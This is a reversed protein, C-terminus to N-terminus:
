IKGFIKMSEEHCYQCYLFLGRRFKFYSRIDSGCFDHIQDWTFEIYDLDDRFTIKKGYADDECVKLLTEFIFRAAEVSPTSM